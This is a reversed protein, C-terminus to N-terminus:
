SQGQCAVQLDVHRAVQRVYTSQPSNNAMRSVLCAAFSNRKTNLAVEKSRCGNHQQVMGETRRLLCRHANGSLVWNSQLRPSLKANPPQVGPQVGADFGWDGAQIEGAPGLRPRKTTTHHDGGPTQFTYTKRMRGPEQSLMRNQDGELLLRGHHRVSATSVTRYDAKRGFLRM